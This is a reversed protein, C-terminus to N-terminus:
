DNAEKIILEAEELLARKEEQLQKKLDKELKQRAFRGEEKLRGVLKAEFERDSLALEAQM